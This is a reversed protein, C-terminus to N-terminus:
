PPVDSAVALAALYAEEAEACALRRSEDIPIGETIAILHAHFELLDRATEYAAQANQSYLAKLPM